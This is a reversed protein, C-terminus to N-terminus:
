GHLALPRSSHLSYSKLSLSFGASGIAQATEEVQRVSIEITCLPDRGQVVHAEDKEVVIRTDDKGGGIVAVPVGIDVIERGLDRAGDLNMVIHRVIGARFSIIHSQPAHHNKM